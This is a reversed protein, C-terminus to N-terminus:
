DSVPQAARARNMQRTRQRVQHVQFSQVELVIAKSIISDGGECLGQALEYMYLHTMNLTNTVVVAEKKM